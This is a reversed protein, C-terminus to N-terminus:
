GIKSILRKVPNILVYKSRGFVGDACAVTANSPIEMRVGGFFYDPNPLESRRNSIAPNGAKFGDYSSSGEEADM